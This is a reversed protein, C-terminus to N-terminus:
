REEFLNDLFTQVPLSNSLRVPWAITHVEIPCFTTDWDHAPVLVAGVASQM